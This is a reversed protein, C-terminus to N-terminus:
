GRVLAPIKKWSPNQLWSTKALLGLVNEFRGVKGVQECYSIYIKFKPSQDILCIPHADISCHRGPERKQFHRCAVNCRMKHDIDLHYSRMNFEVQLYWVNIKSESFRLGVGM